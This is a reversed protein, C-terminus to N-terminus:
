TLTVTPGGTSNGAPNQVVIAKGAGATDVGSTGTITREDVVTVGTAAVGGITVGTSGGLNDGTITFATPTAGAWTTPNIATVTPVAEAPEAGKAGTTPNVGRSWERTSSDLFEPVAAGTSYQPRNAAPAPSM